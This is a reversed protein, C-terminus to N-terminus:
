QFYRCAQRGPETINLIGRDNGAPTTHVGNHRQTGDTSGASDATHGHAPYAGAHGERGHLEAAQRLYGSVGGLMDMGPLYFPFGRGEAAGHDGNRGADDGGFDGGSGRYDTSNGAGASARDHHLEPAPEAEHPVGYGGSHHVAHYGREPEAFQQQHGAM